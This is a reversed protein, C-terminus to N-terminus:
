GQGQYLPPAWSTTWWSNLGAGSVSSSDRTCGVHSARCRLILGHHLGTLEAGSVSLSSGVHCIMRRICLLSGHHVLKSCRPVRHSVSDVSMSNEIKIIKKRCDRSVVAQTAQHQPLWLDHSHTLPGLPM